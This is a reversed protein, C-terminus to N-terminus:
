SADWEALAGRLKDIAGFGASGPADVVERVSAVLRATARHELESESLEPQWGDAIMRERLALGEPDPTDVLTAGAMWDIDAAGEDFLCRKEHFVHLRDSCDRSPGWPGHEVMTGHSLRFYWGDGEDISCAYVVVYFGPGHDVRPSNEADGVLAYADASLEVIDGECWPAPLDGGGWGNVPRNGFTQCWARRQKKTFPLREAM